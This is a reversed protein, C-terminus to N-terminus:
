HNESNKDLGFAQRFAGPVKKAILLLTRAPGHPSRRGQEWNRITSISVGMFSAFAQQSLGLDERIHAVDKAEPLTMKSVKLQKKGKQWASIEKLGHLIEKGINRRDTM